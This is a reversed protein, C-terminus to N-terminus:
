GDNRGSSSEPDGAIKMTVPSESVLESHRQQNNSAGKIIIQAYPLSDV